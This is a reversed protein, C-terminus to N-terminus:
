GHQCRCIGVHAVAPQQAVFFPDTACDPCLPIRVKAADTYYLLFLTGSLIMPDNGFFGSLATILLYFYIFLKTGSRGSVNSVWYAAAKLIGTVDLTISMYALSFFLILINYPKVGDTGRLCILIHLILHNSCRVCNWTPDLVDNSPYIKTVFMPRVTSAGLCQSAWLIAIIIIPTTLLNLPFYRKPGLPIKVPRIVTVISLMFLVLTAIAKGSVM